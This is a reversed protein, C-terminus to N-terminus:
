PLDNSHIAPWEGPKTRERARKLAAEWAERSANAKAPVSWITGGVKFKGHNPCDFGDADGVKDLPKTKVKCIPCHDPPGNM